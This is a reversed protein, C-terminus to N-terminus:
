TRCTAERVEIQGTVAATILASRREQVLEIFTESETILTDIKSTQEDIHALIRRQREVCPLDMPLNLIDAQSINQMSPSSGSAELEIFGRWQRTGLISAVYEPVARTPDLRFGYLKDCLMLRPFDGNVVAASGALERTNARSVVLQGRQVVADQRPAETPPLEKNEEPRFLGGNVAGAKLVGWTTIGDAPWPYCQPSWGQKVELVLNKLRQGSTQVQETAVTLEIVAQRRELLLEILRQQEEILADIRTTECGLYDVIARQEGLPPVPIPLARLVDRSLSPLTATRNNAEVFGSLLCAKLCYLLFGAIVPGRERLRAVHNQFGWGPLDRALLHSRGYGAGGEVVVVDGRRLDYQSLEVETFAMTKTEDLVLHEPQISGAALYPAQVEGETRKSSNMMKGLAIDFFYGLPAARWSSVLEGFWDNGSM